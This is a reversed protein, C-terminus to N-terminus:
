GDPAARDPKSPFSHVRSHRRRMVGGDRLTGIRWSPRRTSSYVHRAYFGDAAILGLVAGDGMGPYQTTRARCERILGWLVDEERPSASRARLGLDRVEDRSLVYDHGHYGGVLQDVIRRRADGEADPLQYGLLEYAIQRSLKDFRYFSSLSTPFIRQAVLALVQLRDEERAVGFWDEAMQRFARIDEASIMGPSDPPPAGASAVHSDIPGLEAMPGLILEDACLCLLTGASRARYPVLITLHRTYERLLLAVQRAATVLGGPSALVLDLRDSRGRTRLCEYLIRATDDEIASAFVIVPNGRLAELEALQPLSARGM